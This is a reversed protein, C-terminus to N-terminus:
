PMSEPMLFLVLVIMALHFILSAILFLVPARLVLHLVSLFTLIMALNLQEIM